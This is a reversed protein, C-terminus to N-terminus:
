CLCAVVVYRLLTVWIRAQVAAIASSVEEAFIGFAYALRAVAADFTLDTRIPMKM